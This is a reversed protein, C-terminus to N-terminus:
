LKGRERWQDFIPRVEAEAVAVAEEATKEGRAAAAFMRPLIFRNFADDVAANLSGPAGLNTTWTHADALFAYKDSPRAQPDNAVVAALDPVAAPFSPMNYFLSRVLTDRAAIAHDVLFQRALDQHESFKWVVYCHVLRESRAVDGAPGLPTPALAIDAALVPDQQETARIASIPNLILSGRGSSLLRNNSASDWSFVEDSMGAKYIAASMKVAEVTAPTNLTVRGDEDQLSAGFSRMMTVATWGSDHEAAYGLGVPHNIAKLPAAARLVDDWTRPRLGPQVQEWLSARYQVPGPSWFDSIGFYRGTRPNRLSREVFSHMPGVKATVEEVIERHDIVADEVVARPSSFGFIDHGRGSAIEADGRFPLENIPIHDVVVEVDNQEGWRKAYENDFWDDYAPVYHSWQAIRLTRGGGGPGSTRTVAAATRKDSSSSCGPGFAAVAAAVRLFARRDM